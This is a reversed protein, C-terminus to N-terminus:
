TAGQGGFSASSITNLSRYEYRTACPKSIRWLPVGVLSNTLDPGQLLQDNLSTGRFKASCDFVVRIKEPKMPHYVGPHPIYWANNADMWLSKESVKEAYGKKIMDNDCLTETSRMKHWKSRKGSCDNSHKNVTTQYISTRIAFPSLSKMIDKQTICAM